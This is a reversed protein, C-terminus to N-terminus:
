LKSRESLLRQLEREIIRSAMEPVVQWVVKEIIEKSQSRIIQELQQESLAQNIHDQTQVRSDRRSSAGGTVPPPDLPIEDTHGTSALDLELVESDDEQALAPPVDPAQQPMKYKSLSKQVWPNETEEDDFGSASLDASPSSPRPPDTPLRVTLFEESEAPASYGEDIEDTDMMPAELPAFNEMSWSRTPEAPPAVKPPAPVPPPTPVPPSATPAATIPRQKEVFDPLKPFSLHESLSQTSTKPVWKNVVSRLRQADFPKELNDSAGCAKYKAHDLEMFGSWILVVPVNALQPHSKIERCVDYGNKKQLIVDAFIIDPKFQTAVQVVDVGVTVTSVEVAYDQLTLQFVKKITVSEDALLVRLAMSRTLM